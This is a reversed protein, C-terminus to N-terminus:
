RKLKLSKSATTAKGAVTTTTRLTVKASRMRKFRKRAKSVVKLTVKADGAATLKRRGRALVRSRGLGLRRATKKNVRLEGSVTCAAPCTIQIALGKSSISRISLKGLVKPRSPGGAGGDDTRSGSRDVTECTADVTDNADVQATDAGIGCNVLEANGDRARIQDSGIAIVDTETRDGVFQDTGPGGDLVDNGFGGELYDDGDGGELTDHGDYAVLHDNGGLGRITSFNAEVFVDDAGNTGVFTAHDAVIRLKEVGIVNDGEGAEGDNAAGDETVSVDDDFGRNYDADVDPIRDFGPGGDVMDAANADPEEKGGSVSDDGDDGLVADAGEFAQITDNGPGGHLEDPGNGSVLTDNGNSGEMYTDPQPVDRTDPTAKLSDDGEGGYAEGHLPPLGGDAILDMTVTDNGGNGFVVLADYSGICAVDAGSQQCGAFASANRVAVVHNAGSNGTAIEITSPGDDNRVVVVDMGSVQEVDVQTVASAASPAALLAVIPLGILMRRKV